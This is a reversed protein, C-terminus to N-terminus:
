ESTERAGNDCAEAWKEDAKDKRWQSYILKAGFGILFGGIFYM